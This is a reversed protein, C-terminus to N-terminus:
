TKDLLKAEKHRYHTFFEDRQNLSAMEPKLMITFKEVLCLRCSNTSPHGSCQLPIGQEDLVTMAWIAVWSLFVILFLCFPGMKAM